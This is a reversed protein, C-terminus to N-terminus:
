FSIEYSKLVRYGLLGEEFHYSVTHNERLSRGQWLLRIGLYEEYANDDLLLLPAKDISPKNSHRTYTRTTLLQYHHKEIVPNSSFVFNILFIFNFVGPVIGYAYLSRTYANQPIGDHYKVVAFGAAISLLLLTFSYELPVLTHMVVKVFLFLNLGGLAFIMFTKTTIIRWIASFLLSLRINSEPKLANSWVQIGALGFVLTFLFGILSDHALSVIPPGVCTALLFYFALNDGIIDLALENKYYSSNKFARYKMQAHERARQRAQQRREEEWQQHTKVPQQPKRYAKKTESYLKGSKRALLYEYAENVEIFREEADPEKSIDPHYLRAKQRYAKKIEGLSAKPTVGLVHYYHSSSSKM